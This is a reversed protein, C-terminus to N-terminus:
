NEKPYHGDDKGQMTSTGAPNDQLIDIMQSAVGENILTLHRCSWMDEFNVRNSEGCIFVM